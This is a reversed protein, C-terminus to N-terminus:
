NGSQRAMSQILDEEFDVDSLTELLHVTAGLSKIDNLTDPLVSETSWTKNDFVEPHLNKMGLLYYGGDKAPGIVFDHKELAEYAEHVHHPRLDLCDSGIILVRDVGEANLVRAFADKMKTGLDGKVQLSKEFRDAPWEDAEDVFESYFVFNKSGSAMAVKRTHGLMYLYAELAKEDGITKALRTKVKGKQPNKVFIILGGNGSPQEDGIRDSSSEDEDPRNNKIWSDGFGCM